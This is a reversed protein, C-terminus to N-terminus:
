STPYLTSNKFFLDTVSLILLINFGVRKLKGLDRMEEEEEGVRRMRKEEDDRGRRRRMEEENGGRKRRTEEKDVGQRRSAEEKDGGQKGRM